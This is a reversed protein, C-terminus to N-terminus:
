DEGEHMRAGVRKREGYGCCQDCFMSSVACARSGRWVGRQRYIGHGKKLAATNPTSESWYVKRADRQTARRRKGDVCQADRSSETMQGDAEATGAHLTFNCLRTRLKRMYICHRTGSMVQERRLATRIQVDHAVTRESAYPSARQVCHANWEASDKYATSEFCCCHRSAIGVCQRWAYKM